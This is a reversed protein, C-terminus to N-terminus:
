LSGEQVNYAIGIGSDEKEEWLTQQFFLLKASGGLDEEEVVEM